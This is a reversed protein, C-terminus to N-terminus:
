RSFRRRGLGIALLIGSVLLMMSGPEPVSSTVSTGPIGVIGIFNDSLTFYSIDATSESFGLTQGTDTGGGTLFTLNYSEILSHSSDYVAITTPTSGGPVYNLFGGIISVPTAFAFTMTDTVGYNNFSDNVGAMPGLTGDWSGNGAFRYTATYGYVSGGHNTANTSTWTVGNYTQPGSGTYDVAPMQIFASSPLSTVVTAGAQSAALLCVALLILSVRTM